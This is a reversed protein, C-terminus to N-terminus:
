SKLPNRRKLTHKKFIGKAFIWQYHFDKQNNSFTKFESM